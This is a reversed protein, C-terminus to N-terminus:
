SMTTLWSNSIKRNLNYYQIPTTQSIYMMMMLLLLLLMMSKRWFWSLTTSSGVKYMCSGLGAFTPQFYLDDEIQQVFTYEIRVGPINQPHPLINM